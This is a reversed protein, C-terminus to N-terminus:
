TWTNRNEFSSPAMTSVKVIDNHEDDEDGNSDIM